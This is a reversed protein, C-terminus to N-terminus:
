DLCPGTDVASGRPAALVANLETSNLAYATTPDDPAIAFAVGVVMGDANVLAGGSDGPMLHASLVLVDRRTVQSDYLNRGLANIREAVRAPSVDIAIQGGPHGFVACTDGVHPTGVALSDEGLGSVDLVALDRNPDFVVVDAPLRRGSPTQVTPQRVGAVVHANTVVIGDEPTFGSGELVRDCASGSVRVTSATVRDQVSPDLGSAEPPPGTSPSPRLGEFVKPFHADQVFNRLSQLPGPADPAAGDVAQAIASNRVLSSVSGPVESLAPLLLWLLVLVGAGAAVAGVGRDVQRAPGPPILRRLKLGAVEGLTAGLSAVLVFVGVAVLARLQADTSQNLADLLRPTVVIAVVIGAVLGLWSTVRTVFGVRYGGFAALGIL